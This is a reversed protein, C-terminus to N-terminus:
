SDCNSKTLVKRIIIGELTKALDITGKHVNTVRYVTKGIKKETYSTFPKQNVNCEEITEVQNM